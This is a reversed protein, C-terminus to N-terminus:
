ISIGVLMNYVLILKM